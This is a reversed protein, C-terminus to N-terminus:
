PLRLDTKGCCSLSVEVGGRACLGNISGQPWASPLAPLLHIKGAKSQLLMEAIGAAGATNGDLSFINSEAGVVGGRSYTLLSDEAAKAILKGGEVYKGAFTLERIRILNEFATPSINKDSPAGSWVTSETLALREIQTGGFVMGGIRGNGIPLAEMWRDAPKSFWLEAKRVPLSPAALMLRPPCVALAASGRVFDRRTATV